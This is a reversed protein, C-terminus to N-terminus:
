TKFPALILIFLMSASCLPMSDLPCLNQMISSGRGSPLSRKVLTLDDLPADLYFFEYTPDTDTNTELVDDLSGVVMEVVAVDTVSAVENRSVSVGPGM